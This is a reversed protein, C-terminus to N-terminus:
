GEGGAGGKGGKKKPNALVRKERTIRREKLVSMEKQVESATLTRLEPCICLQSGSLAESMLDYDSADDCNTDDSRLSLKDDCIQKQRCM